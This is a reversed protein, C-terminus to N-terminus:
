EAGLTGSIPILETLDHVCRLAGAALLTDADILGVFGITICGAAAASAVGAASDEIALCESCPVGLRGAAVEYPAPHPKRFESDEHCVRLPLRASLGSAILSAAAQM